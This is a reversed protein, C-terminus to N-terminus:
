KKIKYITIKRAGSSRSQSFGIGIGELMTKYAKLKKTLVPASIPMTESHMDLGNDRVIDKLKNFSSYAILATDQVADSATDTDKFYSYAIRYLVTLRQQLLQQFKDKDRKEGIGFM